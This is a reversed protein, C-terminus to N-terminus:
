ARVAKMLRSTFTGGFVANAAGLAVHDEDHPLTGLGGILIQTQSREPKDVLVLRRGKKTEPAPVPDAIREGAPLRGVIAEALARADRATVDGAFGLVINSRAFHKGHFARVDAEGIAEVSRTTGMSSRSYPHGAFVAGRFFHTALGRDNDRSEVIEAQTERKLRALEDAPFAPTALLRGLLEAFAGVNRAIVQAHIAISSPSLDVSLEAGLRDLADEIAAANSGECGRRLMRATVRGLGEKGPPDFATGSRLAVVISVLPLTHSPEVILTTGGSLAESSTV